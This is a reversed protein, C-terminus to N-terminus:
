IAYSAVSIKKVAQDIHQKWSLTDDIILGLSKTESAKTICKQDYTIEADVNCYHKTQFELYQTKTYSQTLLSDKFWTNIDRFMQNININFNVKNSDTVLISTNDEYLVM